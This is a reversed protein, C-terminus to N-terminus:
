AQPRASELRRYLEALANGYDAQRFRTRVLEANRRGVEALLRRDENARRLAERLADVEGPRVLAGHVGDEVISGANPTTIVYCGCALAEFVVRASGEAFSPFVFVAATKMQRALEARNITGLLTVRSDQFFARHSSLIERPVPGAITLHWAVGELGDLAGILEEAGKDQELRGAFMLRMPGAIQARRDGAAHRLFHDDVGLYVVHIRGPEWGLRVFMKKLFESNVVLADAQSMDTLMARWFPHTPVSTASGIAQDLNGRLALIEEVLAPHVASHDCLTILGRRQARRVSAYGFGARFHYIGSETGSRALERAALRGYLRMCTASLPPYLRWLLPIRLLLRAVEDLLEPSFLPRLREAPIREDRELLRAIRGTGALGLRRLSRKLRPTPYAGTIALSLIQRSSAEHAAVTLHTRHFGTSVVVM